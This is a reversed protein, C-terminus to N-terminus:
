RVHLPSAPEVSLGACWCIATCLGQSTELFSSLGIAPRLMIVEKLNTQLHRRTLCDLEWDTIAEPSSLFTMAGGDAAFLQSETATLGFM